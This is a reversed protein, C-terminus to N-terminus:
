SQIKGLTTHIKAKSLVRQVPPTVIPMDPPNVIISDGQSVFTTNSGTQLSTLIRSAAEQKTQPSANQTVTGKQFENAVGNAVGILTDLARISCMLSTRDDQSQLRRELLQRFSRDIASFGKETENIGWNLMESLQKLGESIAGLGPINLPKGGKIKNSPNSTACANTKALGALGGGTLFGIEAAQKQAGAVIRGLSGLTGSLPAVGVALLQDCTHLMSTTDSALRTFTYNILDGQLNGMSTKHSFGKLANFLSIIRIINQLPQYFYEIMVSNIDREVAHVSAMAQYVNSYSQGFRTVVSSEYEFLDHDLDTSAAQIVGLRFEAPVLPQSSYFAPYTSLSDKWSQFFVSDAKLSALQLPLWTKYTASDVLHKDVTGVVTALDAVQMPNPQITSDNGVSMELQLAGVHADLLQSYMPVTVFNPPTDTGYISTLARATIPDVAPNIEIGVTRTRNVIANQLYTSMATLDDLAAIIQGANSQAGSTAGGVTPGTPSVPSSTQEPAPVTQPPVFNFDLPKFSM